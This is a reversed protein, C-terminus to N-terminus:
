EGREPGFACRECSPTAFHYTGDPARLRGTNVHQRYDTATGCGPCDRQVTCHAAADTYDEPAVPGVISVDLQRALKEAAFAAQQATDARVEFRGTTGSRHRYDFRWVDAYEAPARELDLPTTVYEGDRSRTYAGVTRLRANVYLLELSGEREFHPALDDNDFCAGPAVPEAIVYEAAELLHRLRGASALHELTTVPTNRVVVTRSVTFPKRTSGSRRVGTTVLYTHIRDSM